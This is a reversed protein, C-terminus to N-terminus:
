DTLGTSTSTSTKKEDSESGTSESDEEPKTTTDQLSSPAGYVPRTAPYAAAFYPAWPTESICLLEADVAAFHGATNGKWWQTDGLKKAMKKDHDSYVHSMPSAKSSRRMIARCPLGNFTPAIAVGIVRPVADIKESGSLKMVSYPSLFLGVSMKAYAAGGKDFGDGGKKINKEMPINVYTIEKQLLFFDSPDPNSSKDAVDPDKKFLVYATVKLEKVFRAPRKERKEGGGSKSKITAVGMARIEIPINIAYWSPAQGTLKVRMDKFADGGAAGKSLSLVEAKPQLDELCINVQVESAESAWEEAGYLSSFGLTSALILYFFSKKM